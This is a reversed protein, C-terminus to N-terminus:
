LFVLPVSDGQVGQCLRLRQLGNAQRGSLATQVFRPVRKTWVARLPRWLSRTGLARGQCPNLPEWRAQANPVRM